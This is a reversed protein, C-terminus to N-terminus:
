GSDLAQLANFGAYTLKCHAETGGALVVDARGEQIADAALGVANASSSCATSVTTHEGRCDFVAALLDATSSVPFSLLRRIPWRELEGVDVDRLMDEAERMGGTTGGIAIGTRAARPRDLELGADRWAERAAALAMRDSRSLRRALPRALDLPLPVEPAVAACRTRFGEVPFLTMEGIACRGERLAQVYAAVGAGCANVSGVGTVVVRHM